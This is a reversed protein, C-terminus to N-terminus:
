KIDEKKIKDKEHMEKVKQIREKVQFKKDVKLSNKISKM